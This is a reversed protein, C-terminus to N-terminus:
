VCFVDGLKLIFYRNDASTSKQFEEVFTAPDTHPLFEFSEEETTAERGASLLSGCDMTRYAAALAAM